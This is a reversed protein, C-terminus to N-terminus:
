SGTETVRKERWTIIVMGALTLVGGAVIRSTIEDGLFVAGFAIAV